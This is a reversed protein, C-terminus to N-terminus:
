DPFKLAREIARFRPDARLPDLLPDTKLEVLGPDRVSLATGLWELAKDANGWQTYIEAYQYASDDGNSAQLKALAAEADAHRVLKDYTVALCLQNLWDDSNIECSARASPFNHLAYYALGRIANAAPYNRDLALADQFAAIAEQHRRSYFLAQGLSNHSRRNLPDLVVARRTADVGADTRGMWTAFRGYDRLVQANGGALGVAREYEEIAHAFDFSGFQSLQALALHAEALEPALALAQRADARALDYVDRRPSGLAFEVAYATRALSRGAFALAYNPDVRIAETYAAIATQLDKPGHQTSHSKSGRLYADFAAPNHTGGMEIKATLDGLLTVKLTSAVANAIETQLKLVDGLDRDYTQSWLHFGTVANILQVTVRVTHTSRRVSGELVTGVNLKRAIVGVDADKGKFSFASTRAAVQLENIRALSNLLEETLGDSFYEQSADGSMNVFPLVAISHPPPAFVAAAAAFTSTHAATDLAVPTAPQPRNFLWFKDAAFYALTGASVVLVAAVWTATSLVVGRKGSDARTALGALLMEVTATRASRDFALGGVLAANQRDSLPAIALPKEGADRAEVATRGAFPHRGSLMEYILCALAYIDDRTDPELQELMECSAYAPTLAGLAAADKGRRSGRAARAIGFDLLKAKGSTTVFVNAPKLDGHIVSHDHAYALAAGLDEIIPWARDFRMGRGFDEDLLAQLTKGELCEMLIFVDSRDVNLSYVGVINQHALTRTKRVEERLLELADPRERIEQALVKIAFTEGKVEQDSALYVVGMGGEGLKRELRYRGGLLQGTAIPANPVRTTPGEISRSKGPVHQEAVPERSEFPTEVSRCVTADSVEPDASGVHAPDTRLMADPGTSASGSGHESGDGEAV